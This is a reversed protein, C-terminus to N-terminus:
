HVPITIDKSGGAHNLLLKELTSNMALAEGMATFSDKDLRYRQASLSLFYTNFGLARILTAIDQPRIPQEFEKLDFEKVNNAPLITNVDWIIDVRPVISHYDCLSKYTTPYGGCEGEKSPLDQLSNVAAACL